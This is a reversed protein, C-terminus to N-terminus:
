DLLADPVLTEREEIDEARADGVVLVIGVLPEARAHFLELAISRVVGRVPRGRHSLRQKPTFLNWDPLKKFAGVHRRQMSRLWYQVCAGKCISRHPYRHVYGLSEDFLQHLVCSPRRTPTSASVM